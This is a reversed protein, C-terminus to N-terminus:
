RKEVKLKPRPPEPKSLMQESELPDEFPAVPLPTDMFAESDTCSEGNKLKERLLQNEAKLELIMRKMEQKQRFMEARRERMEAFPMRFSPLSIDIFFSAVALGLILSAFFIALKLFFPRLQM